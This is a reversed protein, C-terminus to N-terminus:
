GTTLPLWGLSKYISPFLSPQLIEALLELSDILRPGPRNFYQNGDTIVVRDTQVAQLQQWQPYQLLMQAAEHTQALNFGCPMLVMVEPDAALLAGWDLWPSHQGTTGFLNQGGALEVLEPVWNGAAMLPETWEICAVQPQHIAQMAQQHCISVRDQLQAVLASSDVGLVNGVHQIDQWLDALTRPQLSIVRPSGHTFDAVAQEVDALSVACVDCRAQTVIHTPDYSKSYRCTLATSASRLSCCSLSAITSRDAAAKCILIPRLVFQSRSLRPLIIVNMPAGWM